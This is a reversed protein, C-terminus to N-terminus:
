RKFQTHHWVILLSATYCTDFHRLHDFPSKRFISLCKFWVHVFGQSIGEAPIDPKCGSYGSLASHGTEIWLKWNQRYRSSKLHPYLYGKVEGKRVRKAMGNRSCRLFPLRVRERM